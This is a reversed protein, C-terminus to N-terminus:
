RVRISAERDVKRMSVLGIIMIQNGVISSILQVPKGKMGVAGMGGIVWMMM